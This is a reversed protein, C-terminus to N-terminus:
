FRDVRYPAPDTFPKEGTMIEALLRGTVPGLTLGLHHHGFNAWLGRNGPVAGTMPILDPLCPRSGLWPEADLRKDLPFLERAFPEVKELQRPSPKADREAFEAGTTLRIGREMQTMVYGHDTDLVPRSLTANGSASYHMHYGRKFALPVPVGLLKLIDASWPGLALVCHEAKLRGDVTSVTWHAGDRALTRADATLFRGGQKQFLAAYAKVLASPDALSVPEPYHIAGVLDDSLHPELKELEDPNVVNFKIGYRDAQSLSEKEDAELDETDRYVKLYGTRRVLHEVGAAGIFREHESIAKQILPLHAAAGRQVGAEFSNMGYRALWPALKLLAGYHVHAESRRNLLMQFLRMAEMPLMYPVVGEAQIIGTNGYSTAEAAPQRDVLVVQKGLAQLQLATSVGVAGAGLVLCDVEATETGAM